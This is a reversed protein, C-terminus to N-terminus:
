DSVCGIFIVFSNLHELLCCAVQKQNSTSVIPPDSALVTAFTTVVSQSTRFWEVLEHRIAVDALDISDAMIGDYTWASALSTHAAILVSMCSLETGMFNLTSM